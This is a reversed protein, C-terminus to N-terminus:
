AFGSSLQIIARMEDSELSFTGIFTDASRIHAFRWPQHELDEGIMYGKLASVDTFASRNGACKM